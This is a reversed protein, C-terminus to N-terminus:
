SPGGSGALSGASDAYAVEAPRLTMAEPWSCLAPRGPCDGCLERHPHEAVPWRENLVGDALALLADELLAADAVVFSATVPEAPRELLCYAVEVRAAGGRLAALAYVMRQTAYAREILAAPAEGGLRDTKYDVILAAGDPERALVDVFGTVLPGGGGRALEFAFGAERRVDSAAALRACLPSSAFAAVLARIDAVQHPELKLEHAEALAGIQQDTAPEPRNFDLQELLLHVLTGRIRGDLEAVVPQESPPPTIRPLGLVRSLYFRYPCRGYDQLSSYSLRRQAPQPRGAAPILKPEAPLATGTAVGRERAVPATAAAPLNRATVLRALV